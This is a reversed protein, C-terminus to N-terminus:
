FKWPHSPFYNSESVGPKGNAIVAMCPAYDNAYLRMCDAAGHKFVTQRVLFRWPEAKKKKVKKRNKKEM